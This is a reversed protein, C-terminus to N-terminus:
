LRFKEKYDGDSCHIRALHGPTDLEDNWFASDAKPLRRYEDMTGEYYIDAIDSSLIVLDGIEKINLPVKLEKKDSFRYAYDPIIDIHRIWDVNADDLLKILHRISLQDTKQLRKGNLESKWWKFNYFIDKFNNEGLLKQIDEKEFFEQLAEAQLKSINIM